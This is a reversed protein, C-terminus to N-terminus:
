DVHLMLRHSVQFSFAIKNVALLYDTSFSQHYKRFLEDDIKLVVEMSPLVMFLLRLARMRAVNKSVDEPVIEKTLLIYFCIILTCFEDVVLTFNSVLILNGKTGSTTM